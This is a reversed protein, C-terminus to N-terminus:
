SSTNSAATGYSLGFTIIEADRNIGDSHKWKMGRRSASTNRAVGRGHM